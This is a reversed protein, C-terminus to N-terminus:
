KVKPLSFYFTSGKELESEVWIRGKHRSIIEKSIYLGMGLGPYARETNDTVQYLREFVKERQEPSIGIGKDAVSVVVENRKNAINISIDSNAPSYKIANTILNTIVQYIRFRDVEVYIPKSQEFRLKQTKTTPQLVEVTEAVLETLNCREKTLSLKGTQIRSVDLLDNVLDQLRDAQMQMTAVTKQLKPNKYSATWRLLMQIYLKMSTLPTKLEHSAMNVFDDKRRELDKEETIDDLTSVAAIIEQEKNRVPAANVRLYVKREDKRVYEVEKTNTVEGTTLAKLLPAQIESVAHNTGSQISSEPPAVTAIETTVQSGLIDEVQKNGLLAKTSKNFILVGVPLQQLITQLQVASEEAEHRAIKEQVILMDITQKLWGIVLALFAYLFGIVAITQLAALLETGQYERDWVIYLYYFIAIGTSILGGSIGDRFAFYIIFAISIFIVYSGANAGDTVGYIYFESCIYVLINALVPFLVSYQINGLQHIPNLYRFIKQLM